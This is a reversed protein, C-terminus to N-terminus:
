NISIWGQQLALVAAETRSNVGLKSYLNALHNEVTRVSLYLQQAIQKNSLGECVLALVEQERSSLDWFTPESGSMEETLQLILARQLERPLAVEGRAAQRLAMGLEEASIDVSVCGVVGAQLASKAQEVSWELSLLLVGLQPHQKCFETLTVLNVPQPLVVLLLDVGELVEDEPFDAENRSLGRTEIEPLDALLAGIAQKILLFSGAIWLRISTSRPDPM